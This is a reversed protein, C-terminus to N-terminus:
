EQVIRGETTFRRYNSFKQGTRLRPVGSNRIVSLSDASIPLMVIEDPDTFAVPRFRTSSDLREFTVRLPDLSRRSKPLTVDVMGILHEDLRLEDSTESDIWIRGRMRGPLDVHWCDEKGERPRISVPGPKRARYDLMVTPRGAIRARGEFTFAFESQKAPLLMELTDPSVATPDTCEPQDRPRPPRNNVRLLDRQVLAEPAGGDTSAEWTVRLEYTLHRASTQDSTLDSGLTQMRVDETCVISRARAYYREVSAGVGALLAALDPTEPGTQAGLLVGSGAAVAFGCWWWRRM